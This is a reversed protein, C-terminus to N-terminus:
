KVGVKEMLNFFNYYCGFFVYLGMEIYNGDGDVWSGVKGGIFSCVEYLEVEYGVDVLEVVIVMGVLGVGVIVVCM